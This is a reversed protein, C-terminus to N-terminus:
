CSKRNPGPPRCAQPHGRLDQSQSPSGPASGPPHPLRNHGSHRFLSQRLGLRPPPKRCLDGGCQLPLSFPHRRRDPHEHRGHPTPCDELSLSPVAVRGLVPRARRTGFQFYHNALFGPDWRFLDGSSGIFLIIALPAGVAFKLMLLRLSRVRAREDSEQAEEIGGAVRAGYGIGKITSIMEAPTVHRPDFSIAAQEAALNVTAESIGPVARLTRDIAMVCSACTMGSISLRTLDLAAPSYDEGTENSGDSRELHATSPSLGAAPVPTRKGLFFWLLAAGLALAGLSLTLDLAM